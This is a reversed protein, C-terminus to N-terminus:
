NDTKTSTLKMERYTREIFNYYEETAYRGRRAYFGDWIWRFKRDNWLNYAYEKRLKLNTSVRFQVDNILYERFKERIEQKHNENAEMNKEVTEKHASLISILSSEAPSFRPKPLEKYIGILCGNDIYFAMFRRPVVTSDKEIQANHTLIEKKLKREFSTFHIDGNTENDAYLEPYIDEDIYWSFDESIGLLNIIRRLDGDAEDFTKGTIWIEFDEPYEYFYFLENSKSSAIQLFTDESCSLQVSLRVDPIVEIPTLGNQQVLAIFTTKDTIRQEKSSASIM